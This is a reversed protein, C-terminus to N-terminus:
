KEKPIMEGFTELMHRRGDTQGHTERLLQGAFIKVKAMGKQADGTVLNVCLSGIRDIM